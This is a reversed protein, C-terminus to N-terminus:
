DRTKANLANLLTQAEAKEKANPSHRIVEEAHEKLHKFDSSAVKLLVYNPTASEVFKAESGYTKMIHDKPALVYNIDRTSLGGSASPITKYSDKSKKATQHTM